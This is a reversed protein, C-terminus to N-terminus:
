EKSKGIIASVDLIVMENKARECAVALLKGDPSFSLSRIVDDLVDFEAISKGTEADIFALRGPGSGARGGAVTVMRGNPSLALADLGLGLKWRWKLKEGQLDFVRLIENPGDVAFLSRGDPSVAMRHDFYQGDHLHRPKKIGAVDWMWAGWASRYKEDGGVCGALTKGDPLFALALVSGDAKLSLVEKTSGVDSIKVIHGVDASAVSKGDASIAFCVIIGPNAATKQHRCFETLKGNALDMQVVFRGVEFFLSKSDPAFIFYSSPYGPKKFRKRVNKSAIDWLVIENLGSVIALTKGDPSLVANHIEHEKITAYVKPTDARAFSLM